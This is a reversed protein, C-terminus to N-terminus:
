KKYILISNIIEDYTRIERIPLVKLRYLDLPKYLLDRNDYVSRCLLHTGKELMEFLDQTTKEKSEQGVLAALFVMQFPRFDISEFNKSSYTFYRSLGLRKILTRSTTLAREDIDVLLFKIKHKKALIIATLPLPGSGIFVSKKHNHLLSGCSALSNWELEALKEYNEYYWFSKLSEKPNIASSIKKAWFYEMESEAKSCIERLKECEAESLTKKQKQNVALKVLGSFLKNTVKNPSFSKLKLLENFIKRDTM